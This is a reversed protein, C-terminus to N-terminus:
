AANNSDPIADRTTDADDIAIRLQRMAGIGRWVRNCAQCIAYSENLTDREIVTLAHVIEADLPHITGDLQRPGIDVWENGCIPCPATLEIRKPPNIADLIRTRYSELALRYPDETTTNPHGSIWLLYWSRLLHTLSIHGKPKHGLDIIWARFRGDLEEILLEVTLDIPIRERAPKGARDGGINGGIANELMDLLPPDTRRAIKGIGPEGVWNLMVQPKTIADVADLLTRPAPEHPTPETM